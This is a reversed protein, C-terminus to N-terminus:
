FCISGSVRIRAHKQPYRRQVSSLFLLTIFFHFSDLRFLAQLCRIASIFFFDSCESNINAVDGSVDVM